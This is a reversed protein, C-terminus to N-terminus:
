GRPRATTGGTYQIVALDEPAVEVAPADQSHKYLIHDFVHTGADLPIDPLHRKRQARDLLLAFRKLPPLYDGAHTFIIHRLPSGGGPELRDKIQHILEDSQTLTVLISAGSEQIQHILEEPDTTPLTFVAVGGAKLTGYFSIVMQPLNPLFLIVRDGKALGLWRLTNAFRNAEQELRRYTLRSNEFILATHSPYRRVASDLLSQLPVPPIALTYPVGQDYHALWPREALLSARQPDEDSPLAQSWSRREVDIFRAIARNVADRRELMVLHGSAGVDIEEADPILRTVEEYAPRQFVADLHGRIVLTPM